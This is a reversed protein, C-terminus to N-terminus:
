SALNAQIAQPVQLVRESPLHVRAETGEGEQSTMTFRGGHLQTLAKVIPLGLGVGGHVRAYASETQGFPEVVTTLKDEPIGIGTDSFVIDIGDGATEIRVDIRGGDDTYKIANSLLNMFIQRLRNEDGRVRVGLNNDNFHINKDPTGANDKAETIARKVIDGLLMDNEAITVTGADIRAMDLIDNLICLLNQGSKNIDDSYEQVKPGVIAGSAMLESFGIIANLPTRLEHSMNALFHSKALNAAEAAQTAHRLDQEVEIRREIEGDREALTKTLAVNKQAIANRHRRVLMHRWGIWIMLILGILGLAAFIVQQTAERSKRLSIDRKLQESKLHEIEFQQTAFDFQAGMLALNASAALSRGEDGLRKFAELHELALPYNGLAKYVTYAIQHIDRFPTITTKLDVGDFTKSLDRAAAKLAGRQYEIEAKVGWVFRTEGTTDNKGLLAFAQDAAKTAADFRHAKAYVYALNTLINAELYASKLSTAITLARQFNAISEDYRGLQQLAFGINNAISLEIAPDESYVQAAERYYRIEREFDHAKDYISGLGQLAISQGRAEGLKAFIDHAHHYSKLAQGIDGDKDAFRALSLALDGNLKESKGNLNATTIAKNLAERAEGMRNIRTLAEAELWLSTAIAENRQPSPDLTQAIKEAARAKKLAAEPNAMMTKKADAIFHDLDSIAPSASVSNPTTTQTPRAAAMASTHTLGLMGALVAIVFGKAM